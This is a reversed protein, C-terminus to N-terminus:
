RGVPADPVLLVQLCAADGHDNQGSARPPGAYPLMRIAYSGGNSGRGRAAIRLDVDWELRLRAPTSRWSRYSRVTHLRHLRNSEQQPDAGCTISCVLSILLSGCKRWNSGDPRSTAVPRDAAAPRRAMRISREPARGRTFPMENLRISNKQYGKRGGRVIRLFAPRCNGRAPSRM